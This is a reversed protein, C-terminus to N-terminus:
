PVSHIMKTRTSNVGALSVLRSPCCLDPGSENTRRWRARPVVDARVQPAESQIASWSMPRSRSCGQQGAQRLSSPMAEPETARSLTKQRRGLHRVEGSMQASGELCSTAALRRVASSHLLAMTQHRGPDVALPRRGAQVVRMSWRSALECRPADPVVSTLRAFSIRRAAPQRATAVELEPSPRRKAHQTRDDSRWSTWFTLSPYM